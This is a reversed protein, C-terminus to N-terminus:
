KIYKALHGRGPGVELIKLPNEFNLKTYEEIYKFRIIGLSEFYAESDRRKGAGGHASIFYNSNYKVLDDESPNPNTFIIDCTNCRTLFSQSFLESNSKYKRIATLKELGCIPCHKIKLDNM